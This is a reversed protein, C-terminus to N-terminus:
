CMMPFGFLSCKNEHPLNSSKVKAILLRGSLNGALNFRRGLNETNKQYCILTQKHYRVDLM